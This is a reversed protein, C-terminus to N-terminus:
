KSTEGGHDGICLWKGGEKLFIDTWRGSETKVEGKTDKVVYRYYYHTFAFNGRVFIEVPRIEHILMEGSNMYFDM